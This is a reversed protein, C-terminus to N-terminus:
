PKNKVEVFVWHASNLAVPFGLSNYRDFVTNKYGTFTSTYNKVASYNFADPTMLGGPM